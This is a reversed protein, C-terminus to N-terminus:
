KGSLLNAITTGNLVQEAFVTFQVRVGTRDVHKVTSEGAESECVVLEKM